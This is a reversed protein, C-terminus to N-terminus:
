LAQTTKLHWSQSKEVWRATTMRGIRAIMEKLSITTGLDTQRATVPVETLVAVSIRIAISATSPMKEVRGITATEVM